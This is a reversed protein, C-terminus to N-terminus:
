LHLFIIHPNALLVLVESFSYTYSHILALLGSHFNRQPIIVIAVPLSVDLSWVVSGVFAAEVDYVYLQGRFIWVLGWFHFELGFDPM